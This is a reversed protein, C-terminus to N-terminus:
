NITLVLNSKHLMEPGATYGLLAEFESAKKGCLLRAEASAYNALGRAIEVGQLNRVAVVDGRSFVGEVSTIGVPLLSSKGHVLREAAGADVVVAGFLQLHDTM